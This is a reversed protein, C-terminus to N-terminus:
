DMEKLWLVEYPNIKLEKKDGSDKIRVINDSIIDKLVGGISGSSPISVNRVRSGTNIFCFLREKEDPSSRLLGFVSDSCPIVKQKGAPHFAKQKSRAGLLRLFGKFILNRISGSTNLEEITKQYDLKERNIARKVGTKEVGERYNGSGLLSHMYIGPVGKFSLMVAQSALFKKARREKDLDSEAVADRYSINLEYPIEGSPASKYSVYGGRAKVQEILFDIEDAPLIGQAPLVGIGDHSALFNFFATESGPSTLSSAWEQLYSTKERLFAHLVLPPLSFNYVMHAEDTGDGFYSINERHPVNTETLIVVWPTYHNVISRVLKVVAHTKPHHISPHGIEKWLYAIADLRIIQIGKEIYFLLIEILAILVDPNAYNLDVQDESFTTWVYIEGKDTEFRTLLPRARPRVIMSLDTAPDVTIFYDKFREDGQLFKKFWESKVSCHNLVLDAALKFNLGIERIQDWTGLDPNVEKYDIVSFGDDSSYPFFPLIHVGSIFGMLNSDLFEKLCQLPYSGERRFQDGYTILFADTEDMPLRGAKRSFPPKIRKVWGEILTELRASAERGEEAGYIFELLEKIDKQM